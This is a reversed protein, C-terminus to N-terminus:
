AVLAVGQVLAERAAAAGLFLSHRYQMGNVSGLVPFRVSNHGLEASM